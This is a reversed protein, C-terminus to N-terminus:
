AEHCGKEHRKMNSRVSFAKGCDPHPCRFPKEGTHSHGHIKLSSPRSFVKNCQQCVYPQAQQDAIIASTKPSIHHQHYQQPSMEQGQSYSTRHPTSPIELPPLPLKGSITISQAQPNVSPISANTLQVSSPYHPNPPTGTHKQNKSNSSPIGSFNIHQPHPSLKPSQVHYNSGASRGSSFNHDWITSSGTQTRECLYQPDRQKNSVSNPFPPRPQTPSTGITFPNVQGSSTRGLNEGPVNEILSRIPPLKISYLPKSPSGSPKSTTFEPM